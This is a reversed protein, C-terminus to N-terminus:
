TSRQIRLFESLTPEPGMEELEANTKELSARKWAYWKSYFEMEAKMDDLQLDLM